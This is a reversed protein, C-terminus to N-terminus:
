THSLSLICFRGVPLRSLSFALGGGAPSPFPPFEEERERESESEGALIWRSLSFGGAWGGGTALIRFNRVYVVGGRPDFRPREPGSRRQTM